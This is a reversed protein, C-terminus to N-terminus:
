KTCQKNNAYAQKTKKFYASQDFGNTLCLIFTATHTEIIRHAVIAPDKNELELEIMISNNTASNTPKTMNDQMVM